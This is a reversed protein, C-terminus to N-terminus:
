WIGVDPNESKFGNFNVKFFLIQVVDYNCLTVPWMKSFITLNVVYMKPVSLIVM